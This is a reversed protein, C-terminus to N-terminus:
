ALGPDRTFLLSKHGNYDVALPDGFGCKEAVRISALNDPNILCATKPWGQADAWALAARVAETALGRGQFSPSLVWGLEPHAIPPDVARKFEAFGLEGVFIGSNKEVAAWYGYGM